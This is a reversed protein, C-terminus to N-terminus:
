DIMHSNQKKRTKRKCNNDKELSSKNNFSISKFKFITIKKSEIRSNVINAEEGHLIINDGVIDNDEITLKHAALDIDPLNDPSQIENNYFVLEDANIELKFNSVITNGNLTCKNQLPFIKLYAGFFCNKIIIEQDGFIKVKKNFIINELVYCVPKNLNYDKYEENYNPRCCNIIYKENCDECNMIKEEKIYCIIKDETEEVVGLKKTIYELYKKRKETYSINEM